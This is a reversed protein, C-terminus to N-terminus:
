RRRQDLILLRLLEAFVIAPEFSGSQRGCEWFAIRDSPLARRLYPQHPAPPRWRTDRFGFATVLAAEALFGGILVRVWHMKAAAGGAEETM